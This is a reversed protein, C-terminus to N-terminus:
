EDPSEMLCVEHIKNANHKRWAKQKIKKTREPHERMWNRTRALSEEKHALYYKHNSEKRTMTM